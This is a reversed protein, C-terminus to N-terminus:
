DIIAQEKKNEKKILFFFCKMDRNKDALFLIFSTPWFSTLSLFFPLFSPFFTQNFLVLNLKLPGVLTHKLCSRLENAIEKIIIPDIYQM